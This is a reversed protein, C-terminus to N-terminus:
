GSRLRTINSREPFNRSVLEDLQQACAAPVLIFLPVPRNDNSMVYSCFDTIQERTQDLVLSECTEAEGLAILTDNQRQARVDPIRTGITSPRSLGDVDAHTVIWGNDQLYKILARVLQKHWEGEAETFQAM